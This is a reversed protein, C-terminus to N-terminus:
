LAKFLNINGTMFLKSEWCSLFDITAKKSFAYEQSYLSCLTVMIIDHWLLIQLTESIDLTNWSSAVVINDCLADPYIHAQSMFVYNARHFSLFLLKNSFKWVRILQIKRCKRDTNRGRYLRKKLRYNLISLM